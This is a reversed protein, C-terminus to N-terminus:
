PRAFMNILLWGDGADNPVFHFRYRVARQLHAGSKKDNDHWIAAGEVIGAREDAQIHDHSIQLRTDPQKKTKNDRLYLIVNYIGSIPEEHLPDDIYTAIVNPHLMPELAKFDKIECAKCATVFADSLSPLAM